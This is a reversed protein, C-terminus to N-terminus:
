NQNRQEEGHTVYYLDSPLTKRSLVVLNEEHKERVPQRNREFVRQLIENRNRQPPLPNNPPQQNNPAGNFYDLMRNGLDRLGDIIYSM